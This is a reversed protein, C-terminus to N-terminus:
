DLGLDQLFDCDDADYDTTFTDIGNLRHTFKRQHSIIFKQEGMKLYILILKRLLFPLYLEQGAIFLQNRKTEGDKKLFLTKSGPTQLPMSLINESM